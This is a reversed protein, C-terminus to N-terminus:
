QVENEQDSHLDDLTHNRIKAM